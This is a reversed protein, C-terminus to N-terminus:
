RARVGGDLVGGLVGGLARKLRRSAREHLLMRNDVACARLKEEASNAPLTLLYRAQYVELATVYEEWAYRSVKRAVAVEQAHKLYAKESENKMVELLKFYLFRSNQDLAVKSLKYVDDGAERVRDRRDRPDEIESRLLAWEGLKQRRLDRAWPGSGTPHTLPLAALSPLAM